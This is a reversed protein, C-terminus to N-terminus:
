TLFTVSSAVKHHIVLDFWTPVDGVMVHHADDAPDYRPGVLRTRDVPPSAAALAASLDDAELAATTPPLGDLVAELTGPAPPPVPQPISGSGFTLGVSRYRDGLWRRLHGGATTTPEVPFPTIVRGEAAALHSTGGVYVLGGPHEARWALIHEAFGREMNTHNSLDDTGGHVVRVPDARNGASENFQRLWLFLDAMEESALFPRAPALIRRPDGEGAVVFRDLAQSAEWDGEVHVSRFGVTGVLHEVLGLAIVHLEHVTRATWGVGVVDAGDWLEPRAGIGAAVAEPSGVDISWEGSLMRGLMGVRRAAGVDM